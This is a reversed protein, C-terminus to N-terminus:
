TRMMDRRMALMGEIRARHQPKAQELQAGSINTMRDLDIHLVQL